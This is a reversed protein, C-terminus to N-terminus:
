KRKAFASKACEPCFVLTALSSDVVHGHHVVIDLEFLNTGFASQTIEMQWSYDPYLPKFDGDITGEEFKGNNTATFEAAVWTAPPSTNKLAKAAKLSQMTLALVTFMASFFLFIAIMVEILTFARSFKQKLPTHSTKFTM